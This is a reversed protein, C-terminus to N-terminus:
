HQASGQGPSRQQTQLDQQKWVFDVAFSPFWLHALIGERKETSLAELFPCSCGRLHQGMVNFHKLCFLTSPPTIPLCSWPLLHCSQAATPPSPKPNPLPLVLTSWCRAAGPSAPLYCAPSCSSDQPFLLLLLVLPLLFGLPTHPFNFGMEQAPGANTLISCLLCSNSCLVMRAGM